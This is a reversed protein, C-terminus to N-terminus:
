ITSLGLHRGTTAINVFAKSRCIEECYDDFKLLCKTGKNKISDIFEFNVGQVLELNEFEKPLVDYPPQSHQYLFCLKDFKPQFTENKLWKYILQSKGTKSPGVLSILVRNKHFNGQEYDQHHYFTDHRVACFELRFLQNM